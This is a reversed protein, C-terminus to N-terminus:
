MCARGGGLFTMLHSYIGPMHADTVSDPLPKLWREPKWEMADDGWIGSNRNANMIGIVVPTGEPVHVESVLKGDVGTVPRDFPLVTDQRTMRLMQPIPPFLRLTERCVADLYTLSELEDYTLTGHENKAKRIESRLREQVDPHQVLLCVTRALASSTTDMAAFILTRAHRADAISSMQALLEAEDLPDDAKMNARILLSLIDKGQGIQKSVIADGARLAELKQSYIEKSTEWMFDIKDRLNHVNPMPLANIVARRFWAPGLKYVALEKINTAYPHPADDVKLSDFTYGLGSRGILELATRSIWHLMDVERPGDETLTGLTECLQFLLAGLVEQFIPIMSRIHTASFVPNMLKRQRRHKEGSSSLLGDGFVVTNTAIYQPHEEYIDMDKAVIHHLAKPDSVYLQKEGFLGTTRVVSGYDRALQEHFAWADPSFLQRFNGFVLSKSPPGPIDDLPSRLVFRSVVRWVARGIALAVIVLLTNLWM